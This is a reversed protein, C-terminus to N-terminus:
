MSTDVALRQHLYWEAAEANLLSLGETLARARYARGLCAVLVERPLQEQM